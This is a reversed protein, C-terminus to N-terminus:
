IPAPEIKTIDEYNYDGVIVDLPIPKIPARGTWYGIQDLNKIHSYMIRIITDQCIKGQCPGMGCRTWSKLQNINTAGLKIADEIQEKNIDECRCIITDAQISNTIALPPNMLEAVKKGFKELYNLKNIITKSKNQFNKKSILSCEYALHFSSLLGKQFAPIAGSIGSGDGIIYLGKISSEFFSNISAIWGGRKHNYEHKSKMLKTIETSPILGHGVVLCDTIIKNKKSNKFIGEKSIKSFEVELFNNKKSVKKIHCGFYIPVRAFLIKLLWSISQRFATFNLLLSPLIKIWDLKNNLDIIAEVKGGAKIINVAVVALLPGCGAVVTSSGPLVRHSKLLITSAALGIVGPLTWGEFPIVREYTGTAIVIKKAYWTVIHNKNYADIRFGPSVQWVTHCFAKEVKSNELLLSFKKQIKIEESNNKKIEKFTAPPARYVQGGCEENNDVILTKCGLQSLNTAAAIGAPGAGIVIADYIKTHHNQFSM